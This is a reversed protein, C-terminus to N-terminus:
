SESRRERCLYSSNTLIMNTFNLVFICPTFEHIMGEVGLFHKTRFFLNYRKVIKKELTSKAVQLRDPSPGVITGAELLIVWDNSM